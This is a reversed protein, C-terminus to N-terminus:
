PANPPACRKAASGRESGPHNARREQTIAAGALCAGAGPCDERLTRDQSPKFGGGQADGAGRGPSGCSSRWSRGSPSGARRGQPPSRVPRRRPQHRKRRGTTRPGTPGPLPRRSRHRYPSRNPRPRGRPPSLRPAAAPAWASGRQPSWGSARRRPRWPWPAQGGEPGIPFEAVYRDEDIFRVTGPRGALTFRAALAPARGTLRLLDPQERRRIRQGGTVTFPPGPPIQQLIAPCRERAFDLFRKPDAGCAASTEALIPALEDPALPGSALAGLYSCFTRRFRPVALLRTMAPFKKSFLPDRPRRFSLDSDWALLHWRGGTGPTRYLYANKGQNRGYTDWDNVATRVAFTRLWQDVNVYKEVLAPFAAKTTAPDMLAVLRILPRFDQVVGTARAPFNWRYLEPDTGRYVFRAEIRQRERGSGASFEFYDDIKHLNGRGPGPFWRALFDGDIREVDEFVAKEHGYINLYVYRQRLSPVGLRSLLYHVMREQQLTHDQKQGDLIYTRRGDLLCDGFAIKWNFNNQTHRTYPSGRPRFSVNYFIRSMGYVFTADTMRNSFTPRRALAEWQRRPVLLHYTPLRDHCTLGVLYCAARAPAGAPYRGTGGGAWAAEVYFEVIGPAQPPITGAWFSVGRRHPIPEPALPASQWVPAGDQRFFLRATLAAPAPAAPTGAARRYDIRVRVRVPDAPRPAVPDQDPVGVIPLPKAAAISNPKGPTGLKEPPRLTHVLAVGQGVTRTLLQVCGRQWKARFGLYYRKEPVLKKAVTVAVYNDRPNGRGTSVIRYCRRGGTPFETTVGSDEHTGCAKWRYGGHEFTETILRENRSAIQVSDILCAGADLLLFQFTRAQANLFERHPGAYKYIVWRAKKRDDSAGWATPLDNEAATDILELSSGLGDAWRPWPDHDGYRVADVLAGGPDELRITEGADSLTGKYPGFVTRRPVGYREAIRGPDKAILVYGRPPIKAGKPFTLSIGRRVRFGALHVGAAGRNYIEVYEDRDDETIPHYMIESFVLDPPAPVANAAGPSPAALTCLEGTGDPFRGRSVGKALGDARLADVVRDGAPVTLAFSAAPGALSFRPGFTAAPVALYGRPAISVGPPFVYRRLETFDDTLFFGALDVAAPGANFLEVFGGPGARIENIRVPPLPPVHFRGPAPGFGNPRGPTGPPFLAAVQGALRWGSLDARPAAPNHIEVYELAEGAGAPHYMIESIIVRPAAPLRPPALACLFALFVTATHRQSV